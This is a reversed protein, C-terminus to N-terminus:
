ARAAVPVPLDLDEDDAVVDDFDLDEPMVPSRAVVATAKALTPLDPSPGPVRLDLVPAMDDDRSTFQPRPLLIPGDDGISVKLQLNDVVGTALALLWLTLQVQVSEPDPDQFIADQMRQRLISEELAGSKVAQIDTNIQAQLLEVYMKLSRELSQLKQGSDSETAAKTKAAM